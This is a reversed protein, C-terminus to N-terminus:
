PRALRASQLDLYSSRSQRHARARHDFAAICTSARDRTLLHDPSASAEIMCAVAEPWMSLHRLHFLRISLHATHSHTRHSM